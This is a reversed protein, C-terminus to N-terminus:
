LKPDATQQQERCRALITCPENVADSDVYTINVNDTVQGPKETESLGIDQSNATSSTWSVISEVTTSDMGVWATLHHSDIFGASAQPEFPVWGVSPFWVDVWSHPQGLSSITLTSRGSADIPYAISGGINYGGVFRAPIGNARALALFLHAWGDCLSKKTKLVTVADDPDDGSSFNYTINRQLYEQIRNTLTAEDGAGSSLLHALSIIQQDKSQVKPTAQLYPAINQPINTLTVPNYPLPTRLDVDMKAVHVTLTFNIPGPQPNNFLDVIYKNGQKDTEQHTSDMTRSSTLEVSQVKQSYGFEQVGAPIPVTVTLSHISSPVTIAIHDEFDVTTSM